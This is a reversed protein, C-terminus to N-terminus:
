GAQRKRGDGSLRRRLARLWQRTVPIFEEDLLACAVLVVVGCALGILGSQWDPFAATTCSGSCSIASRRRRLASCSARRHAGVAYLM